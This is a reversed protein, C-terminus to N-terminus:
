FVKFRSKIFRNKQETGEDILYKKYKELIENSERDTYVRM